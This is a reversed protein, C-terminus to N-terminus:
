RAPADPVSSGLEGPGGPASPDSPESPGAVAGAMRGWRSVEVRVDEGIVECAELTAHNQDAFASATACPDETDGTSLATAAAIATMDAALQAEQAASLLKVGSIIGISLAILGLIISAGYTTSM